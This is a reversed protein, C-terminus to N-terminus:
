LSIGIAYSEKFERLHRERIRKVGIEVRYIGTM